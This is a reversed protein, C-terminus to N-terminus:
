IASINAFLMDETIKYPSQLFIDFSKQKNFKKNTKISTM